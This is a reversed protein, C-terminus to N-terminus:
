GRDCIDLIQVETQRLMNMLNDSEMVKNEIERQRQVEAERINRQEREFEAQKQM